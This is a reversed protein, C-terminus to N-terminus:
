EESREAIPCRGEMEDTCPGEVCYETVEDDSYLPCVKVDREAPIVVPADNLIDKMQTETEWWVNPEKCESKLLDVDVLDGHDPIEILPCDEYRVYHVDKKLVNCDGYEGDLCPCEWCSGRHVNIGKILISM